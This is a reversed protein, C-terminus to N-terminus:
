GNLPRICMATATTAGVQAYLGPGQNGSHSSQAYGAIEHGSGKPQCAWWGWGKAWSIINSVNYFLPCYSQYNPYKFVMLNWVTPTLPLGGISAAWAVAAPVSVTAGNHVLEFVNSVEVPYRASAGTADKVIIWTEGNAKGQVKGSSDVTAIVTNESEFTYPETGNNPRRSQTNGPFDRGSDAWGYPSFIAMGNLLMPEPKIELGKTRISYVTEPFLTATSEEGSKDMSVKFTLTLTTGNGLEALYANSLPKIWYGQSIWTANTKHTGGNWFTLNHMTGDSKFGAFKLWVQQGVEIRSWDFARLTADSSGLAVLDLVNNNAEAEDVQPSKLVGQVTFQLESTPLASAHERLKFHHAGSALGLFREVFGGSANFGGARVVVDNDLLQYTSFATGDSSSLEIDTYPIDDGDNIPTGGPFSTAGFSPSQIDM